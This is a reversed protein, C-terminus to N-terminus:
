WGHGQGGALTPVMGFSLAARTGRLLFVKVLLSSYTGAALADLSMVSFMSGIFEETLCWSLLSRCSITKFSKKSVWTSRGGFLNDFALGLAFILTSVVVQHSHNACGSAGRGAKKHPQNTQDLKTM